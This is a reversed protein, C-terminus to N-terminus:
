EEAGLNKPHTTKASLIYEPLCRRFFTQDGLEFHEFDRKPSIRASVIEGVKDLGFRNADIM